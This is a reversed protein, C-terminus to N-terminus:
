LTTETTYIQDKGSNDKGAKLQTGTAVDYETVDKALEFVIHVKDPISPKAPLHLLDKYYFKLMRQTIGNM